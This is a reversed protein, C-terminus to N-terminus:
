IERTKRWNFGVLWGVTSERNKGWPSTVTSLKSVEQLDGVAFFRSSDVEKDRDHVFGAKFATKLHTNGFITTGWFPHNPTNGSNKSVGLDAHPHIKKTIHFNM